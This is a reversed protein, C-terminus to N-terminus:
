RRARAALRTAQPRNPRAARYAPRRRGAPAASARPFASSRLVRAGMDCRQYTTCTAPARCRTVPALAPSYVVPRIQGLAGYCDASLTQKRATWDSGFTHGEDCHATSAKVTIQKISYLM